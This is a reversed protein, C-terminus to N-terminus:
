IRCNGDSNGKPLIGKVRLAADIAGFGRRSSFAAGLIERADVDQWARKQIKSFYAAIEAYNQRFWFTNLTLASRYIQGESLGQSAALEIFGLMAAGHNCDPLAAPNDCCPRYIRQSIDMVMTEQQPTLPVIPLSNLLRGGAQKGLTWGGTSAFDSAQMRYRTGVPGNTLVSSINAIGLPWFLNLLVAANGDNITIPEDSPATLIKLYGKVLATSGGYFRIFADKDIAGAQVMRVVTDGFSVPLEASGPLVVEDPATTTAQATLGGASGASVMNLLPAATMSGPMPPATYYLGVALLGIILGGALIRRMDALEGEAKYPLSIKRAAAQIVLPRKIRDGPM